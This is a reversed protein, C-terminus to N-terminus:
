DAAHMKEALEVAWVVSDKQAFSQMCVRLSLGFPLLPNYYSAQYNLRSHWSPHLHTSLLHGCKQNFNIPRKYKEALEVAFVKSDIDVFSQMCVSLPVGFLPLPNCYKAQCGLLSHWSRRLHGNLFHGCKQNFDLLRMCKEALEVAWIISDM